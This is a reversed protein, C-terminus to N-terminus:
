KLRFAARMKIDLRQQSSVLKNEDSPLGYNFITAKLNLHELRVANYPIDLQIFFDRYAKVDLPDAICM